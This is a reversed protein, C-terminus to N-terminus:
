AEPPYFDTSKTNARIDTFYIDGNSKIVLDNPANLHYGEYKDALVTLKGDAERRVVQGSGDGRVGAPGAQRHDSREVSRCMIRATASNRSPTPSTRARGSTALYTTVQKTKPDWKDIKNSILDSFHSSAATRAM